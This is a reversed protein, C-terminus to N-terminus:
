NARWIQSNTETKSYENMQDIKLNWMYTFVANTKTQSIESRVIGEFDM